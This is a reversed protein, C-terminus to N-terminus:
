AFALLHSSSFAERCQNAPLEPSARHVTTMEFQPHRYKNCRSKM